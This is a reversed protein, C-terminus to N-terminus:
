FWTLSKILLSHVCHTPQTYIIQPQAIPTTTAKLEGIPLTNNARSFTVEEYKFQGNKNQVLHEWYITHSMLINTFCAYTITWNINDWPFIFILLMILSCLNFHIYTFFVWKFITKDFSLLKIWLRAYPGIEFWAFKKMAVRHIDLFAIYFLNKVWLIM